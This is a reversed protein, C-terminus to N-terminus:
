ARLEELQGPERTTTQTTTTPEDLRDFAIAAAGVVGVVDGLAALEIRVAAAAPGMASDAVVRRVPDLLMDGARTVGGGLVVLDPELINVLDTVAQGLLDVTEQWVSVALPDGRRALRSVDAATCSELDALASVEGSRLRERARDAINTGSAYAEICGQRGCSCQRGGPRVVLHGLEGGNGAAGVHLRGGLVLGGGIGTSITLYIMTEVGRGLGFRYEGLAAASADNQLAFPVGFDASVLDGLPVRRWGPLHLPSLLVGNRADLPGGCSIGVALPPGLGASAIATHGMGLLRAIVADPGEQVRTPTVSLEHPQGDPTVMAVALKTGGIDLALVPSPARDASTGERPCVM